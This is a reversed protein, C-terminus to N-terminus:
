KNKRKLLKRSKVETNEQQINEDKLVKYLESVSVIEGNDDVIDFDDQNVHILDKTGFYENFPPLGVGVPFPFNDFDINLGPARFTPVDFYINGGFTVAKKEGIKDNM